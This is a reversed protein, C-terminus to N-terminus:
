AEAKDFVVNLELIETNEQKQLNLSIKDKDVAVYKAIVALIETQIKSLLEPAMASSSQRAIILSLREKAVNASNKEPGFRFFNKLM